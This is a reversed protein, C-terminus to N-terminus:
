VLVHCNPVPGTCTSHLIHSHLVSVIEQGESEPHTMVMISVALSYHDLVVVSLM